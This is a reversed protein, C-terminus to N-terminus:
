KAWCVPNHTASDTVGKNDIILDNCTTDKIKPVITIRYTTTIKSSDGAEIKSLSYNGQDSAPTTTQYGLDTATTTYTNNDFFYRELRAQMESLFAKGESRKARDVYSRYAPVAVSALIGVIVVTIMLETLTFGRQRTSRASSGLASNRIRNVVQNGKAARTGRAPEITATSVGPYRVM